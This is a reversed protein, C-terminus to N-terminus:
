EGDTSHRYFCLHGHDCHGNLWRSCVAVNQKGELLVRPTAELVAKRKMVIIATPEKRPGNRGNEKKGTAQLDHRIKGRNRQKSGYSRRKGRLASTNFGPEPCTEDEFFKPEGNVGSLCINRPPLIQPTDSVKM